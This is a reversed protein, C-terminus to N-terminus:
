NSRVPLVVFQFECNELSESILCPSVEDKFNFVVDKGSIVSTLTILDTVRFSLKRLDGERKIKKSFIGEDVVEVSKVMEGSLEILTKGLFKCMNLVDTLEKKNFSTSVEADVPIVDGYRPFTLDPIQFQIEFEGIIFAGINRDYVFFEVDESTIEVIDKCLKIVDIPMLYQCQSKSNFKHEFKLIALKFGDTSVCNFSEKTFDFLVNHLSLNVGDNKDNISDFLKDYMLTFKEDPLQMVPTMGKMNCTEPFSYDESEPTYSITFEFDNAKLICKDGITLVIIRTSKFYNLFKFLEFYSVFFNFNFGENAIQITVTTELNTGILYLKDDITKFLVNGLIPKIQKGSAFNLTRVASILKSFRMAVSKSKEMESGGEGSNRVAIKKKKAM